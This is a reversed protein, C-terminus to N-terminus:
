IQGTRHDKAKEIDDNVRELGNGLMIELHHKIALRKMYGLGKSQEHKNMERYELCAQTNNPQFTDLSEVLHNLAEIIKGPTDVSTHIRDSIFHSIDLTRSRKAYHVHHLAVAHAPGGTETYHDGISFDGFHSRNPNGAVTNLDTFFEKEPYDANRPKRVFRDSVLVCSDDSVSQIYASEVRGDMFVHWRFDNEKIMKRVANQQPRGYYILALPYNAGYTNIFGELEQVAKQGDIVYLSPTWNDYEILTQNILGTSIGAANDKFEGHIPNCIFLFPMSEEIFRDISIRTTSNAKVPEIIPIVRRHKAINSALDRVAMLENQKGRLFPFYNM